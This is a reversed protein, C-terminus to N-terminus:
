NISWYIEWFLHTVCVLELSFFWMQAIKSVQSSNVYNFWENGSRRIPKKCSCFSPKFKIRGSQLAKCFCWSPRWFLDIKWTNIYVYDCYLCKVNILKSFFCSYFTSWNFTKNRLGKLTLRVFHDFVNLCNTPLKGIFQKFTNSWKTPNASLPNVRKICLTSFHCFCVQIYEFKFFGRLVLWIKIWMEIATNLINRLVKLPFGTARSRTLCIWTWFGIRVGALFRFDVVM